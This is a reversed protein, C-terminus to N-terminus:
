RSENPAFLMDTIINVGNLLSQGKARSYDTYDITVAEEAWPVDIRALQHIIQSAHAMRHMTLHLQAAVDRRLVRLGNHADSLNMGTRWRTVRAATTLVSKKIFGAQHTDTLFRSGLVFGLQERDAREVMRQADSTRHQGDADFTVLYRADTYTLLWTIGTQLAAGQGLNIPHDIVIAGAQRARQASADRSGDNVCVINPFIHRAARVVDGIVQAENYLPIVLWSVQSLDRFTGSNM